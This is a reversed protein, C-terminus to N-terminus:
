YPHEYHKPDKRRAAYPSWATGREAPLLPNRGFTRMLVGAPTLVLFFFASLIIRANIWGLVRAFRWWIRNPLRLMAPAVLAGGILLAAIVAAVLPTTQHGRWWSVVAVLAVV